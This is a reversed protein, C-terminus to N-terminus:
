DLRAAIKNFILNLFDVTPTRDGREYTEYEIISVGILTAFASTGLNPLDIRDGYARRMEALRGGFDSLDEASVPVAGSESM